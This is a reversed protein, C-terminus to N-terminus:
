ADHTWRVNFEDAPCNRKPVGVQRPRLFEQDACEIQRLGFVNKRGGVAARLLNRIGAPEDARVTNADIHDFCRLDTPDIEVEAFWM